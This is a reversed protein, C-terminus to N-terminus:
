QRKIPIYAWYRIMPCLERWTPQNDIACIKASFRATAPHKVQVGRNLSTFEDSLILLGFDPPRSGFTLLM